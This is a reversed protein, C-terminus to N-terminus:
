AFISNPESMDSCVLDEKVALYCHLLVIPSLSLGVILILLLVSLLKLKAISSNWWGTWLPITVQLTSISFESGDRFSHKVNADMTLPLEPLYRLTLYGGLSSPEASWNGSFTWLFSPKLGDPSDTLAPWAILLNAVSQGLVLPLCACSLCYHASMYETLLLLGYYAKSHGHHQTTVTFAINWFSCLLSAWSHLTPTVQYFCWLSHNRWILAFVPM